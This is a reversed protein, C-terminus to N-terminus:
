GRAASRYAEAERSLRQAHRHVTSRSIGTEKAIARVSKGSAVLEAIVEGADDAVDSYTWTSRGQEDTELRVDIATADYGHLGRAKSWEWRLACGDTAVYGPPRSLIISTDLLDERKSTGRQQGTKGAHHIFLVSRHQRRMRLAWEAVLSWSEADNEIGTRALCSLNDVVILKARGTAGEIREQGEGTSLDPLTGDCLDPTIIRFHAPEAKRDASVEIRRLRAQMETAPMEGDIYLVPQAEPASWKLFRGGSAVAYAVALAVQTKGIGRFASVMNIGQVCLWPSLLSQRPPLDLALFDDIQVANLGASPTM